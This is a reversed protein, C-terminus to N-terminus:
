PVEISGAKTFLYFHALARIAFEHEAGVESEGVSVTIWEMQGFRRSAPKTKRVKTVREHVDAVFM